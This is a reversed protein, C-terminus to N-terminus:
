GKRRIARKAIKRAPVEETVSERKAIKKSKKRPTPVVGTPPPEPASPDFEEFGEPYMLRWESKVTHGSEAARRAVQNMITSVPKPNGGATTSDKFREAIRHHVALRDEGGTLMEEYAIALDSEPAFKLPGVVAAKKAAAKKKPTSLVKSPKVTKKGAKKVVASKSETGKHKGPMKTSKAIKKLPM